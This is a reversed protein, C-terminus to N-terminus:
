HQIIVSLGEELRIRGSLEIIIRVIKTPAILYFSGRQGQTFGTPLFGIKDNMGLSSRWMLRYPYPVPAFTQIIKGQSNIIRHEESWNTKKPKLVMLQDLTIAKHRTINLEHIIQQSVIGIKVHEFTAELLPISLGALILTISIAFLIEIFTFGSTINNERIM